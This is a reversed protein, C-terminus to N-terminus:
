SLAKKKRHHYLGFGIICAVGTAFVAIGGAGAPGIPKRQSTEPGTSTIVAERWQAELGDQDFGYIETLAQDCSEGEKIATLLRFIDERGYNSILYEVVSLSQAYSLYAVEPIASFPSSLSRLSIFENEAIAKQFTKELYADKKSEAYMALGEDLWTPMSAGYPSFTHQHTYMHGLEHALADKGWDLENTSVGIAITSFETFAVGGTWENPFIMSGQLDQSNAYIYISVPRELRSNTDGALKELAQTGADLLEQAFSKDGEYWYLTLPGESIIQWSYRTDNFDVFYVESTEINGADDEITWWYQVKAGTPLNAKRMDWTWETDVTSSPTFVPWAESIVNAFNWREVKYHLRIRSITDPSEVKISFTIGGPFFVSTNSDIITIGEDAYVTSPFLFAM